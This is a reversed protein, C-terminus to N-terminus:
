ARKVRYLGANAKLNINEAILRSIQRSTTKLMKAAVEKRAAVLKVNLGRDTLINLGFIRL